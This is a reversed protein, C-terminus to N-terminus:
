LISNRHQSTFALAEKIDHGYESREQSQKKELFVLSLPRRLARSLSAPSYGRGRRSLRSPEEQRHAAVVIWRGQTQFAGAERHRIDRVLRDIKAIARSDHRAFWDYDEIFKRFGQTNM